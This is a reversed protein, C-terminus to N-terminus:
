FFVVLGAGGTGRVLPGVFVREGEVGYIPQVLGFLVDGRVFFRVRDVDLTLTVAAGGDLVLATEARPAMVGVGRAFAASPELVLSPMVSFADGIRYGIEVSSTIASVVVGRQGDALTAGAEPWYALRLAVVVREVELALVLEPAIAPGPTPGLGGRLGAGLGLRVSSAPPLPEPRPASPTEDDVPEELPESTPAEVAPEPEPTPPLSRLALASTIVLADVVDGCQADEIERELTQGDRAISLHGRFTGAETPAVDVAVAFGDFSGGLDAVGAVFAWQDGCPVNWTIAAPAPQARAPVGVMIALAAILPCLRRARM